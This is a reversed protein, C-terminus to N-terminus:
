LGVDGVLGDNDVVGANTAVDANAGGDELWRWWRPQWMLMAGMETDAMMDVYGM